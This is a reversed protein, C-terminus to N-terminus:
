WHGRFFKLLVPRGRTTAFDFPAGNEDPARFDPLTAGVAIVDPGVGQRSITVTFLLFATVLLALGAAAGGLWGPGQVLAAVALAGGAAWLAVYGSRNRPLRVARAARAWQLASGGVVVLSLLALGTANLPRDEPPGTWWLM